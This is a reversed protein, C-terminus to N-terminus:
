KVNLCKKLDRYPASVCEKRNTGVPLGFLKFIDIAQLHSVPKGELQECLIAAAAMSYVCADGSFKIETITDNKIDVDFQLEDGCTPNHVHCHVTASPLQGRFQENQWYDM